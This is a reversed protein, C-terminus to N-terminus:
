DGDNLYESFDEKFENRLAEIESSTDVSSKLWDGSNPVYDERQSLEEFILDEEIDFVQDLFSSERHAESNFAVHYKKRWRRDYPFRTNWVLIEDRISLSM